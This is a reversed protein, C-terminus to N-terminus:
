RNDIIIKRRTNHVHNTSVVAEDKIKWVENILVNMMIKLDMQRAAASKAAGM